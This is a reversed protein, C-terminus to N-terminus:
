PTGWRTRLYNEVLARNGSSLVSSFILIEGIDCAMRSGSTANIALQPATTWGVTNTGTTFFQTGDIRNTWEGSKSIVGYIHWAALSPTPNGTMHRTTSGWSDYINADGNYPYWDGQTDSGMIWLGNNLGESVVKLVIFVEGETYGTLFNPLNLVDDVGDFRLVSLSNQIALKLTPRISGAATAHRANGSQDLLQGVADGDATAASGGSTQLTGADAKLWLAPSLQLPSFGGPYSFSIGPYFTLM